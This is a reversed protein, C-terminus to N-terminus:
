STSGHTLKNFCICKFTYIIMYYFFPDVIQYPGGVFFEAHGYHVYTTLFILYFIFFILDSQLMEWVSCLVYV